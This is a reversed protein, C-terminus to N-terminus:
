KKKLMKSYVLETMEIEKKELDIFLDSSAGKPLDSISGKAGKVREIRSKTSPHTSLMSSRELANKLDETVKREFKEDFGGFGVKRYADYINKLAKNQLAYYNIIHNIKADFDVSIKIYNELAEGYTDGGVFSSATWDALYERQRSYFLTLAAFTYYFILMPLFVIWYTYRSASVIDRLSVTTLMLGSGIVNDAGKFHSFEHYLISYIEKATLFQLAGIGILLKKEFFGSVAISSDPILIIKYPVKTGLSKAVSNALDFIKPADSEKLIIGKEKKLLRFLFGLILAGILIYAL